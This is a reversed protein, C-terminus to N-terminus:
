SARATPATWLMIFRCCSEWSKGNQNRAIEIAGPLSSQVEAADSDDERLLLEGKLRHTGAEYFIENEDAAALAETLASPGDLRDAEICAEALLRLFHPRRRALEEGWRM